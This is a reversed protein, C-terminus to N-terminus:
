NLTALAKNVEIIWQQLSANDQGFKTESYILDMSDYLSRATENYIKNIESKYYGASFRKNVLKNKFKLAYLTANDYLLQQYALWNSHISDSPKVWSKSRLFYAKPYLRLNIKNGEDESQLQYTMEFFSYANDKEGDTAQAAFDNKSLKYGKRLAITDGSTEFQNYIVKKNISVTEMATTNSMDQHWEPHVLYDKKFNSVASTIARAIYNTINLKPNKSPDVANSSNFSYLLAGTEANNFTCNFYLRNRLSKREQRKELTLKKIELTVATEDGQTFQRNLLNLIMTESSSAFSFTIDKKKTKHFALGINSSNERLDNVASITFPVASSKGNWDSLNITQSSQGQLQFTASLFIVTIFLLNRM